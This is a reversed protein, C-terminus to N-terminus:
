AFDTDACGCMVAYGEPGAVWGEGQCVVCSARPAPPSSWLRTTVWDPGTPEDVHDEWGLLRSRLGVEDYVGRRIVHVDHGDDWCVWGADSLWLLTRPRRRSDKWGTGFQLMM